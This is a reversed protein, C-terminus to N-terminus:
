ANSITEVLYDLLYAWAEESSLSLTIGKQEFIAMAAHFAEHAIVSAKPKYDRFWIYVAREDVFHTCKGLLTPHASPVEDDKIKLAKTFHRHAAELPGGFYVTVGTKYLPIPIGILKNKKAM